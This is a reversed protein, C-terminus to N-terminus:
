SKKGDDKKRNEPKHDARERNFARKESIVDFLEIEREAALGMVGVLVDGLAYHFETWRGRREAEKANAVRRVIEFLTGKFPLPDANEVISAVQWAPLRDMAMESGILDLTRIATDALECDYMPLHPLKDDMRGDLGDAAECVETVILMLLDGRNRTQLISQGTELDAWWKANDILHIENALAAFDITM